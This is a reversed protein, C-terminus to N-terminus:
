TDFPFMKLTGKAPMILNHTTSYIKVHSMSSCSFILDSFHSLQLPISHPFACKKQVSYVVAQLDPGNLAFKRVEQNSIVESNAEFKEHFLQTTKLATVSITRVM